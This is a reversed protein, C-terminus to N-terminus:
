ISSSGHFNIWELFWALSNRDDVSTSPPPSARCIISARAAPNEDGLSAPLPGVSPYCYVTTDGGKWKPGKQNRERRFINLLFLTLFKSLWIRKCSFKLVFLFLVIKSTGRPSFEDSHVREALHSDRFQDLINNILSLSVPSSQM